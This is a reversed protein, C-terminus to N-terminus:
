DGSVVNPIAGRIWRGISEAKPLDELSSTRWRGSDLSPLARLRREEGDTLSLDTSGTAGGGDESFLPRLWRDRISYTSYSWELLAKTDAFHDDSHLVVSYIGRGARESTALLVKDALPTDGTKLGTVGPFTGLLSNTNRFTKSTGSPRAPMSVLRIRSIRRIDPYKQSEIILTLLDRATSYHDEADLGNPNAFRTSTMGVASAQVNMMDVFGSVSEDGVSYALALAADNGSRVLMAILLDGVAWQDGAVLGVTSGRASTVFSPITVITGLEANELVVIATMIKTVSAMPSREDANWSALVVDAVADYTIWREATLDPIDPADGVSVPASAQPTGLLTAALVLSTLAATFM